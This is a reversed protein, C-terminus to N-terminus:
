SGGPEGGAQVKTMEAPKEVGPAPQTGGASSATRGWCGGVKRSEQATLFTFAERDLASTCIFTLCKGLLYRGLPPNILMGLNARM